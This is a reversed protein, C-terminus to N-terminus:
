RQAATDRDPKKPGELAALRAELEKNKDHLTWIYWGMLPLAVILVFVVLGTLMLLAVLILFTVRVVVGIDTRSKSVAPV